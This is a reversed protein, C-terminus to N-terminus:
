LNGAAKMGGALLTQAAATRAGSQAMRGERRTQQAQSEYGMAELFANNRIEAADQAGIEMTEQQVQRASGFSVDVGGGAYGTKQQGVLSKIKKQYSEASKEGLEISRKAQKEMNRANIKSMEYQYNGQAKLAESQGYAQFLQLGATAAGGASGM